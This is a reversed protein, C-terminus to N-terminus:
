TVTHELVVNFAWGKPTGSIAQVWLALDDLDALTIDAPDTNVPTTTSTLPTATTGYGALDAWAGALGARRQLKWSVSTGTDISHIASLLKVSHGSAALAIRFRAIKYPTGVPDAVADIDAGSITRTERWVKQLSTNGPMAQTAGTGLTRLGPTGAAPDSPPTSLGALSTAHDEIATRYASIADAPEPYLHGGHNLM